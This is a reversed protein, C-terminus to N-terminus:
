FPFKSNGTADHTNLRVVFIATLWIWQLKWLSPPFIGVVDLIRLVVLGPENGDRNDHNACSECIMQLRPTNLRQWALRDDENIDWAALVARMAQIAKEDPVFQDVSWLTHENQWEGSCRHSLLGEFTLGKGLTEVRPDPNSNSPGSVEPRSRPYPHLGCLQCAFLATVWNVPHSAGSYSGHKHGLVKALRSKTREMWGDIGDQIFKKM